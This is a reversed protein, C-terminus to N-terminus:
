QDDWLKKAEAVYQRNVGTMAAAKAAANGENRDARSNDKRPVPNKAATEAAEQALIPEIEAAL